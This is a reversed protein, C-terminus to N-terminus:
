KKEKKFWTPLKVEDFREKYLQFIGGPSKNSIAFRTKGDM